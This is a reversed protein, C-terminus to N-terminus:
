RPLHALYVVGDDLHEKAVDLATATGERVFLRKSLLDVAVERGAHLRGFDPDRELAVRLAREGQALEEETQVGRVPHDPPLWIGGAWSMTHPARRALASASAHDLMVVLPSRETESALDMRATDLDPFERWRRADLVRRGTGGGFVSQVVTAGLAGALEDVRLSPPVRQFVLPSGADLQLAVWEATTV